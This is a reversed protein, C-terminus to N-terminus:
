DDLNNIDSPDTDTSGSNPLAHSAPPALQKPTEGDIHVRGDPFVIRRTFTMKLEARGSSDLDAALVSPLIKGLLGAYASSNEIALKALYETGGVQDLSDLLMAKLNATVKNPSGKPRGAGARPGGHGGKAFLDSKLKNKQTKKILGTGHAEFRGNQDRLIEKKKLLPEDNEPPEDIEM